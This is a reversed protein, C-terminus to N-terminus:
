MGDLFNRLDTILEEHEEKVSDEEGDWADLNRHLLDTATEACKAATRMAALLEPIGEQLDDGEFGSIFSEAKSLAAAIIKPM